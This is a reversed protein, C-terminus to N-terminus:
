GKPDMTGSLRFGGLHAAMSRGSGAEVEVYDAQVRWHTIKRLRQFRLKGAQVARALTKARRIGIDEQLCEHVHGTDDCLSKMFRIHYAGM